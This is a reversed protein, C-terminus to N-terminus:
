RETLPVLRPEGPGERVLHFTIGSGRPTLARRPVFGRVNVRPWRATAVPVIAEVHDNVVVAVWPASAPEAEFEVHGLFRASGIASNNRVRQARHVAFSGAPAAGEVRLGPALARGRLSEFRGAPWSRDMHDADPFLAHKRELTARRRHLDAPYRDIARSEPSGDLRMVSRETPRECAPDLMSCGDMPWPAERGLAQVLTPLVDISQVVDDNIAGTKQGPLKVFLPVMLVDEPHKSRSPTRRSEGPWFGIGYSSTVVLLSSDFLSAAEMADLVRGLLMDVFRAENLYRLWADEVLAPEADWIEGVIGDVRTPAYEAGVADLHWPFYPILVHVFLLSPRSDDRTGADPIDLDVFGDFLVVQDPGKYQDRRVGVLWSAQEEPSLQTPALISQQERVTLVYDDALWTFLNHPFEAHISPTRVPRPMQGTLLAPLSELLRTAVTSHGRAWTSTAALRAFNPFSAADIQGDPAQISATSMEDFVVFVVDPARDAAAARVPALTGVCCWLAVALVLRPLSLLSQM